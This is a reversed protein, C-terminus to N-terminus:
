SIKTFIQKLSINCKIYARAHKEVLPRIHSVSYAIFYTTFFNHFFDQIEIVDIM